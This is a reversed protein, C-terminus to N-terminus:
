HPNEEPPPPTKVWGMIVRVMLALLGVAAATVAAFITWSQVEVRSDEVAVDAQAEGDVAPTEPSDDAAQVSAAGAVVFLAAVLAAGILIARINM